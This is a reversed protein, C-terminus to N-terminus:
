TPAVVSTVTFSDSEELKGVGGSFSLFFIAKVFIKQKLNKKQPIFRDVKV